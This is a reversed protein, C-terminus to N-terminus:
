RLHTRMKESCEGTRVRSEIKWTISWSASPHDRILNRLVRVYGKLFNAPKILSSRAYLTDLYYRRARANAYNFIM